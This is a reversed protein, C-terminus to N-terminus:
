LLRGIKRFRRENSLHDPRACLMTALADEWEGFKPIASYLYDRKIRGLFRRALTVTSPRPAKAQVEETRGLNPAYDSQHPPTQFPVVGSVRQAVVFIQTEDRTRAQVREGIQSPAKPEYWVGGENLAIFRLEYGNQPTLTSFFFEPSFQYFGHGMCNNAMQCIILHGGVRVMQMCSAMSRKIDFVHELTGGDILCSFRDHLEAPLEVNLNHIIEAGEYQSADIAQPAVAGLMRLFSDAYQDGDLGTGIWGRLRKRESPRLMLRQRGLTAVKSFDVGINRSHLLLEATRIDLGM